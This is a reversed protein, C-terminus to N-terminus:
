NEKVFVSSMFDAADIMIQNSPCSGCFPVIAEGTGNSRFCCEFIFRYAGNPYTSDPSIPTTKLIKSKVGGVYLYAKGKNAEAVLKKLCVDLFNEEM